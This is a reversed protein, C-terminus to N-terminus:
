QHWHNNLFYHGIISHMHYLFQMSKKYDNWNKNYIMENGDFNESCEEVLKSVLDKKFNCNKYELGKGIDCSKDYKWKCNSLNWIFGKDYIGKDTLEKCECRCKNNTWRQKNNCVSADLRYKCKCTEHWEFIEQKM